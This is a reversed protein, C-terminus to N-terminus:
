KAFPRVSFSIPLGAVVMRVVLGLILHHLRYPGRSDLASLPLVIFSMVDEVAAGFLLGCVVPPETM